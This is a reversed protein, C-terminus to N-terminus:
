SIGLIEKGRTLIFLVSNKKSDVLVERKCQVLLLTGAIGALAFFLLRKKM